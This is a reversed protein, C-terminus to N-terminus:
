SIGCHCDVSLSGLWGKLQLKQLDRFQFYVVTPLKSRLVWKINNKVWCEFLLSMNGKLSGFGIFLCSYGEFHCCFTCRFINDAQTTQLMRKSVNNVLILTSATNIQTYSPQGLLDHVKTIVCSQTCTVRHYKFSTNIFM